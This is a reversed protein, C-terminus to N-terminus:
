VKWKKAIKKTKSKIKLSAVDLHLDYLKSSSRTEMACQKNFIVENLYGREPAPSPVYVYSDDIYKYIGYKDNFFGMNNRAAGVHIKCDKASMKKIPERKLDCECFEMVRTILRAYPVGGSLGRLHQMHFM